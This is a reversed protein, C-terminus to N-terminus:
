NAIKSHKPLCFFPHLSVHAHYPAAVFLIKFSQFTFVLYLKLPFLFILAFVMLSGATSYKMETHVALNRM